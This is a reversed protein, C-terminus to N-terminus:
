DYIPHIGGFNIHELGPLFEEAPRTPHQINDQTETKFLDKLWMGSIMPLMTSWYKKLNTFFRVFSPSRKTAGANVGRALKCIIINTNSAADQRGSETFIIHQNFKARVASEFQECSQDKVILGKLQEWYELIQTEFLDLYDLLSTQDDLFLALSSPFGEIQKIQEVKLNKCVALSLSILTSALADGIDESKAGCFAILNAYNTIIRFEFRPRKLLHVSFDYPYDNAYNILTRLSTM